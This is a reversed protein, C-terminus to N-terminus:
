LATAPPLLGHPLLTAARPLQVIETVKLGAAFPVIPPATVMVCLAPVLGCITSSVPVPWYYSDTKGNSPRMQGGPENASGNPQNQSAPSGTVTITYVGPNTGHQGGGGGGSGACSLTAFGIWALLLRNEPAQLDKGSEPSKRVRAQM